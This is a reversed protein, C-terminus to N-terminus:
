GNIDIVTSVEFSGLKPIMQFVDLDERSNHILSYYIDYDYWAKPVQNYLVKIGPEMSVLFDGM